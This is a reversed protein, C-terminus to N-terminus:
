RNSDRLTKTTTTTTTTTCSAGAWPAIADGDDGVAPLVGSPPVLRLFRQYVKAVTPDSNLLALREPHEARTLEALLLAHQLWIGNYGLVGQETTDKSAAFLQWLAEVYANWAAPAGEPLV